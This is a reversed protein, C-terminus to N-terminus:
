PAFATDVSAGDRIRALRAYLTAPSAKALMAAVTAKAAGYHHVVTAEDGQGFASPTTLARVASATQAAQPSLDYRSRHDVQMALGEDFWTPINVMRQWPGVRHHLESHMLEHALVDTNHGQPGMFLCARSGIFQTSGYGSLKFPGIGHPQSFFVVIPQAAPAGFAKTIRSRADHILSTYRQPDASSASDILAGNALRQLPLVSVALCAAPGPLAFVATSALAAVVAIAVLLRRVVPSKFSPM